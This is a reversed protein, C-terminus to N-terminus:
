GGGGGRVVYVAVEGLTANKWGLPLVRRLLSLACFFAFPSIPPSLSAFTIQIVLNARFIPDFFSLFTLRRPFWSCYLTVNPPCPLFFDGKDKRRRNM